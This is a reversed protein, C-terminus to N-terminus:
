SAGLPNDQEWSALFGQGKYIIAPPISTGDAAISVIVTINERTRKCTQHQINKGKKGIVHECVATGTQIGTEDAAWICDPDVNKVHTHLLGFWERNNTPNAAHACDGELSSLWITQIHNSHRLVFCNTWQEGVGPFTPVRAKIITDVHEHLRQHSLPFGRATTEEMFGLIVKEEEEFLWRKDANFEQMTKGGEAHRTITAHNLHILRGTLNKHEIAVEECIKRAGKRDNIPKSLETRYREVAIKWLEATENSAEQQKESRIQILWGNYSM